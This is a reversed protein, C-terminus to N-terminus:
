DHYDDYQHAAFMNDVAKRVEKWQALSMMAPDHDTSSSTTHTTERIIVSGEVGIDVSTDRVFQIEYTSGYCMVIITHTEIVM